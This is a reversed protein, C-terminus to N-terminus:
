PVRGSRSAGCSRRVILWTDLLCQTNELERARHLLDMLMKGAGWGLGFAPLHVTTLQPDIYAALPIDDFGVLAVDEPVRLSAEQLASLAGFAIVDSAAFVATPCPDCEALIDRMAEAGSEDTFDGTRVLQQRFTIGHAELAQRYGELRDRSATYALPANTICAIERHGLDILHQVAQRAGQVNDVDVFPISSGPLQGMMVIPIREEYIRTLEEDDLRPGSIVIGDARRARVLDGYEVSGNAPDLPEILVHYGYDKLAASLGQVVPSLFADDVLQHQSQRLVLAITGVRGSALSQAVSDPIYNLERAVSLIRNRTEGSINFGPVDNLVFSVTTRSVGAQEAIQRMTVRKAGM